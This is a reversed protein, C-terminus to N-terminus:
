LYFLSLRPIGYHKFLQKKFYQRSLSEFQPTPVRRRFPTLEREVETQLQVLLDTSSARTLSAVLKEEFATLRRELGELDTLNESSSKEVIQELERAIEEIEDALSAKGQKEQNARAAGLAQFHSRLHALLEDPPFPDPEAKSGALSGSQIADTKAVEAAKYVEQACYALSNVKQFRAPRKTFKEFSRQIGAEVAELPIGAEKWAEILAWDLTSLLTASGRCRQFCQEIETFYNFYNEM